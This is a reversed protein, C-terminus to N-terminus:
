AVVGGAANYWIASELYCPIKLDTDWYSVGVPTSTAAIRQATTGSLAGPYSVKSNNTTIDSAQQATIGTKATNL